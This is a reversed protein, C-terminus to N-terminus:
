AAQHFALKQWHGTILDTARYMEFTDLAGVLEGAYLPTATVIAALNAFYRNVKMYPTDTPTPKADTGAKNVVWAM